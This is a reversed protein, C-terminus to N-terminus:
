GSKLDGGLWIESHKNAGFLSLWSYKIVAFRPFDAMASKLVENKLEEKSKKM